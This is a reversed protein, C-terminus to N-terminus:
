GFRRAWDPLDMLEDHFYSIPFEKADHPIHERLQHDLIVAM